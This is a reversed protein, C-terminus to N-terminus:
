IRTSLTKYTEHMGLSNMLEIARQNNSVADIRTCKNNRAFSVLTNFDHEWEQQTKFSWSFLTIIHLFREDQQESYLVKALVISDLTDEVRVFCQVNGSLLDALLKNFYANRSKETIDDTKSSAYKIAEWYAPIDMANLLIM